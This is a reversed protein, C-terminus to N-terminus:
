HPVVLEGAVFVLIVTAIAIAAFVLGGREHKRLVALAGVIGAAIGAVGAALAPVSIWLNDLFTDGGRQGSAVILQVLIFTAVAAALLGASARGVRTSPLIHRSLM